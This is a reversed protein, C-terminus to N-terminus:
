VVERLLPRTASNAVGPIERIRNLIGDFESLNGTELKIVMDWVGCTRHLRVVEPFRKLTKEISAAANGRVEIMMIAQVRERQEVDGLEVTFRKIARSEILRALRTQITGRALRLQGSLTTVSARADLTLADILKRDIEDLDIM